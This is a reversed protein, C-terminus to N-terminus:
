APGDLDNWNTACPFSRITNSISSQILTTGNVTAPRITIIRWYLCPMPSTPNSIGPLTISWPPPGCTACAPFQPFFGAVLSPLERRYPLDRPRRRNLITATIAKNRPASIQSSQLDQVSAPPYRPPNLYPAFIDRPQDRFSLDVM